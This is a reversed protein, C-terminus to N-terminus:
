MLIMGPMKSLALAVFVLEESSVAKNTDSGIYHIGTM